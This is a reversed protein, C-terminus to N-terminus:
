RCNNKKGKKVFYLKELTQTKLIFDKFQFNM